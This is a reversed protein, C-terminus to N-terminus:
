VEKCLIWIRLQYEEIECVIPKRSDDDKKTCCNRSNHLDLVM